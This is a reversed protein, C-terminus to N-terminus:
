SFPDSKLEVEPRVPIEPHDRFLSSGSIPSFNVIVYVLRGINYWVTVTNNSSQAAQIAKSINSLSIASGLLNQIFATIIDSPQLFQSYKALGYKYLLYGSTYCDGIANAGQISIIESYAFLSENLSATRNTNLKIYTTNFLDATIRLDESCTMINASFTSAKSGQLFADVLTFYYDILSASSTSGQELVSKLIRRYM